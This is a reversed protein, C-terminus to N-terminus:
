NEILSRMNEFDYLTFMRLSYWTSWFDMLSLIYDQRALDKEELAINYETLSIDGSIYRDHAIGYRENAVRDTERTYNIFERLMELNKCLTMVEQELVLSEQKVTYEVLKLNVEATKRAAKSRGWDLIPVMIGLNVIGSPGPNKYIDPVSTAINTTGYSLYLDANFGSERRAKEMDRRAETIQQKFELSSHSNELALSIALSDDIQIEPIQDPINLVLDEKVPLGTYSRLELQSTESSLLSRAKAKSSALVGHELQLLENRSIQGMEFREMGIKYISEAHNHNIESIRVNSQALLLNFYRTVTQCAIYENTEAYERISAEYKLPELKKMWKLENFGYIPQQFGIFYPSGNYSTTNQEFEDLRSLDTSLFIKGGTIAINQELTLDLKSQAQNVTRYVTSGNDQMVPISTNQYFPLTSNLVLRPKLESKFSRYQWYKNEKRTNNKMSEPSHTQAYLILENLTLTQCMASSEVILQLTLIAIVTYLIRIIHIHNKGAIM